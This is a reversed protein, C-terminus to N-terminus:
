GIFVLAVLGIVIALGVAAAALVLVQNRGARMTWPPVPEGDPRAFARFQATNGSPDPEPNAM